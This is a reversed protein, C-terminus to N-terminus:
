PGNGGTYEGHSHVQPEHSHEEESYRGDRGAPFIHHFLASLVYAM